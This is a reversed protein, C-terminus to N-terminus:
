EKELPQIEVTDAEERRLSLYCNRIRIEIPDGMPACREMTVDEGPVVGMELLRRRIPGNARIACIRGRKGPALDSLTRECSHFCKRARRRMRM